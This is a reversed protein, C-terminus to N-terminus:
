HFFYTSDRVVNVDLEGRKPLSPLSFRKFTQLNKRYSSVTKRNKKILYENWIVNDEASLTVTVPIRMDGYRTYFEKELRIMIEKSHMQVFAERLLKNMEDVDSPHTWYSDHVAAFCIKREQCALASIMMHSADLSHVFNPPFASSQKSLSVPQKKETERITFTQLHTRVESREEKYYPQVIPLGLPTTWTVANMQQIRAKSKPLVINDSKKMKSFMDLEDIDETKSVENNEELEKQVVDLLSPIHEEPAPQSPTPLLGMKELQEIDDLQNSTLDEEKVSLSIQRAAANLWLQIERAGGFMDSM